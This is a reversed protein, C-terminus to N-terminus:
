DNFTFFPRLKEGKRKFIEKAKVMKERIKVNFPCRTECLGCKVCESAHHKLLDYHNLVTEVVEGQAVCLDLYKNVTIKNLKYDVYEVNFISTRLFLLQGLYKM